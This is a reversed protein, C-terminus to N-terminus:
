LEYTGDQKLSMDYIEGSIPKSFGNRTDSGGRGLGLGPGRGRGRGMFPIENKEENDSNLGYPVQSGFNGRSWKRGSSGRSSGEKPRGLNFERSIGMGCISSGEERRGMLGSNESSRRKGANSDSRISLELGGDEGGESESESRGRSRFRRSGKGKIGNPLTFEKFGKFDDSNEETRISEYPKISHVVGKPFFRASPFDDGGHQFLQPGDNDSWLDYGGPRQFRDALVKVQEDARVSFLAPAKEVVEWPKELESVAARLEARKRMEYIQKERCLRAKLLQKAKKQQMRKWQWKSVGGPFTRPGGGMRIIPTRLPNTSIKNLSLQSFKTLFDMQNPCTLMRISSLNQSQTSISVSMQITM